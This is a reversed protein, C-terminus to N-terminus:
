ELEYKRYKEYLEKTETKDFVMILEKSELSVYMDLPHAGHKVYLYQQYRDSIRVVTAPNYPRTEFAPPILIENM